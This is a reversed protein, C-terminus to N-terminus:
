RILTTSGHKKVEKGNSLFGELTWVFVGANVPAGRFTGDWGFNLTTSEFVLEGWRDFVKFTFNQLCNSRVYLVDNKTDGNPSFASPIFPEYCKLDVFVTMSDTSVCGNQDKVTLFYVTTESPNAWPRPCTFENPYPPTDCHLSDPPSWSYTTIAFNGTSSLGNLQVSDGLNITVNTGANSLPGADVKVYHTVTVPTFGAGHSITMTVPFVGNQNLSSNIKYCVKVKPIPTSDTAAYIATDPLLVTYQGAQGIPNGGTFVWEYFLPLPNTNQTLDTFYICQNVCITDRDMTFDTFVLPPCQNVYITLETKEQRVCTGTVTLTYITTALPAIVVTDGITNSAIPASPGISPSWYYQYSNNLQGISPFGYLVNQQGACIILFQADIYASTTDGILMRISDTRGICGKYVPTVYYWTDVTPNAYIPNGITDSLNYDPWWYYQTGAAQTPLSTVRLSDGMKNCNDVTDAVPDVIPTPIVYISTTYTPYAPCGPVYFDTYYKFVTDVIGNYVPTVDTWSGSNTGLGGTPASTWTYSTNSPMTGPITLIMTTGGSCITDDPSTTLAPIPAPNVTATITTPQSICGNQTGVLTYTYIGTNSPNVKASDGSAFVTTIGTGSWTYTTPGFNPTVTAFLTTGPGGLCILPAVPNATVSPTQAVSVNFLVSDRCGLSNNAVLTLVYSGTQYFTIDTGNQTPDSILVNTSPTCYWWWSQIPGPNANGTFQYAVDTCYNTGAPPTISVTSSNVYVTSTAQTTCTGITGTVTYVTTSAPVVSVSITTASGANTSWTYTTANTTATLVVTGTCIADSNVTITPSPLVTVTAVSDDLCGNVDEGTVTYTTNVTPSVVITNNVAGTSWTYTTAGTATLTASQTACLTTSTVTVTPLPNVNVTVVQSASCTGTFATVTYTTSVTPSVAVTATNAGGANTSWTYSNAPSATLVIPAGACTVPASPTITIPCQAKVEAIVFVAVLFTILRKM